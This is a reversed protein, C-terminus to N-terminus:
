GKSVIDGFCESGNYESIKVQIESGILNNDSKMKVLIYDRTHGQLYGDKVQEPIVRHIKGIQSLIYKSKLSDSLDLLKHVRAKKIAGDIQNKMKSAVTGERRSYPFVHLEQFGVEKIFAITDLFDVETEGPFGVIVDTTVVLNDINAKLKNIFKMYEITTYKRNMAKLLKDNGGQLPIHIHNVIKKSKKIVNIVSDTLETIEISSIRIRKLGDIKDLDALLDTFSYDKLDEGYGGTHIGTLVIEIHGSAVLKKAEEIVINPLKSRVRGRTYPIICYSCFNNCGDQIK